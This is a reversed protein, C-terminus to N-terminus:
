FIFKLVLQIERAPGASTIQGTLGTNVTSNPQAFNARNFANFFESRFEVTRNEGWEFDKYMSLDFDILGPGYLTNVGANGFPIYVGGHVLDSVPTPLPYCAPNFWEQM